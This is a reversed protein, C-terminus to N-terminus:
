KKVEILEGASHASLMPAYLSQLTAIGNAYDGEQAVFCDYTIIFTGKRLTYFFFDAADTKMERYFGTGDQWQYGSLQDAPALCGPMEDVITAYDIDRSSNVTLEVRVRQGVKLQGKAEKVTTGSENEEVTLLRKSIRVDSESFQKVDAIPSIYQVAVGGWSQHTASKNVKIVGNSAESPNLAVTFTGTLLDRKAPSLPSGNLTIRAPTTNSTWDSGSTLIAYVIEAMQESTGWDRAQREIILWQRLGDIMPSDPAIENFAELAQATTILKDFGGFPSENLNDFWAGREASSSAYQRLSELISRAEMTYKERWLLTAATAKNYIGFGKWDAKISKLSKKKLSAFGASANVDPFFSRIYLWNLMSSESVSGYKKFDAVFDEDVYKVAKAIMGSADDPLYGMSKLMALRWLIQGTIFPSADMGSCWAWGGNSLQGKKLDAFGEAIAKANAESDLLNSLRSMRLTESEASKVWPTNELAVIKLQSDKQLPSVLTSDGQESWASIAQAIQPYQKVLGAAVANGYLANTKVLLSASKEFSMDPLATVCYWVPNDCYSFTVSADDKIAPLQLKFNDAAPAIYFPYTDLVPTSSPRIAILSQEGDSYQGSTGMVRYGIFERNDPVRLDLGLVRSDKSDVPLASFDQRVLVEDNLPNFIEIYGSLEASSDSNNYVTANLFAKDGTRLFRPANCTVMVPKSAVINRVSLNSILEPTYAMLQLQWTTNFDPADFSIELVGDEGTCLNPLFFASPCESPRFTSTTGGYSIVEAESMSATYDMAMEEEVEEYGDSSAMTNMTPAPVAGTAAAKMQVTGVGRIRINGNLYGRYMSLGPAVIWPVKISPTELFKNRLNVTMSTQTSSITKVVGVGSGSLDAKVADWKFDRLHNLSKDSMTAIVPIFPQARNLLSYRFKWNEKGGANIKDRFSVVEMKLGKVAAESRICVSGTATKADRVTYFDADLFDYYGQPAEIEINKMESDLKLLGYKLVKERNSITYLLYQNDFSSGVPISITKKGAPATIDREPLWLAEKVPPVKDTSRWLIVSKDTKYDDCYPASVKLTYEGSPVDKVNITFSNDTTSGEALLKAGDLSHLSYYVPFPQNIGTGYRRFDIKLVDKDVNYPGDLEIIISADKGISFDSRNSEQTEGANDTATAQVYFSADAFGTGKLNETPLTLCFHGDADTTVDASFEASHINFNNGRLYNPKYNITLKVPIQSLPMGSYTNVKGTIQVSDGVAYTHEQEDLEVFFTPQKYDEVSFSSSFWRSEKKGNVTIADVSIYANGNLGSDALKFESSCRGNEDTTLTAKQVEKGGQNLSVTLEAGKLLRVSNDTEEYIVVAFKCTDGPHYISRNTYIEGNYSIRDESMYESSNLTVKDDGKSVVINYSNYKADSNYLPPLELYGEAGTVGSKVLRRDKDTVRVNVESLPAGNYTDVVYVRSLSKDEGKSYMLSPQIDSVTIIPASSSDLIKSRDENKVSSACIIYRGVPLCGFNVKTSDAEFDASKVAVSSLFKSVSRDNLIDKRSMREQYKNTLRYLQVYPSKEFNSADVTFEVPTRSSYSRQMETWLHARRLASLTNKASNINKYDPFRSIAQELLGALEKENSSKNNTFRYAERLFEVAYESDAWQGYADVLHVYAEEDSENSLLDPYAVTLAAVDRAAKALEVRQCVISNYQTTCREGPSQVRDKVQFPIISENKFPSLQSLAQKALVTYLNPYFELSYDDTHMADKWGKMSIATLKEPQSLAKDVLGSITLAYMDESWEDPNEPFNDLPLKREKYQWRNSSYKQGYLQAELMYLISQEALDSSTRALSDLLQVTQPFRTTSISNNAAVVNVAQSVVAQVNGEARAKKLALESKNLVTEPYAWDEGGQQKDDANSVFYSLSLFAVTMMTKYICNRM